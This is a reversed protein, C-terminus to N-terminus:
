NKGSILISYFKNLEPEVKKLLDDMKLQYGMRYIDILAQINIGIPSDLGFRQESKLSVAFSLYESAYTIIDNVLKEGEEKNGARILIEALGLTFFDNPIKTVPVLDLGRRAVEVAKLTDGSELLAKGLNGFLRRFNSFM